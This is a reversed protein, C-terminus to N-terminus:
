TRELQMNRKMSILYCHHLVYFIYLWCRTLTTLVIFRQLLFTGNWYLNLAWVCWCNTSAVHLFCCTSRLLCCIAPTSPGNYDVNNFQM